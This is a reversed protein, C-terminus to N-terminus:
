NQLEGTELSLEIRPEQVLLMLENMHRIVVILHSELIRFFYIQTPLLLTILSSLVKMSVLLSLM